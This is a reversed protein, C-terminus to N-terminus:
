RVTGREGPIGTVPHLRDVRVPVEPVKMGTLGRVRDAVGNRLRACVAGIDVPYALEVGLRIRATGSRVEASASPRRGGPGYPHEPAASLVEYAARSAVKAVVREAITLAGREAAPVTAPGPPRRAPAAGM